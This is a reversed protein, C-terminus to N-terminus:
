AKKRAVLGLILIVAMVLSMVAVILAVEKPKDPPADLYSKLREMGIALAVLLGIAFGLKPRKWSVVFSVLALAGSASGAILSATSGAKVYGMVGGAILVIAYILLSIRAKLIV